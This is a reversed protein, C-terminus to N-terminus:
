SMLRHRPMLNIPKVLVHHLEKEWVLGLSLAASCAHYSPVRSEFSLEHKEVLKISPRGLQFALLAQPATAMNTAIFSNNKHLTPM